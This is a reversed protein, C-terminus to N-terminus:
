DRFGQDLVRMLQQHIGDLDQKSKITLADAQLGQRLTGLIVDSPVYKREIGVWTRRGARKGCYMALDAAKVWEQQDGHPLADANCYGITASLQQHQDAESEIVIQGITTLIQNAFDAAQDSDSSTAFERVILFEEGGWRIIHDHQNTIERLKQAVERLVQDGASHGLSDNIRKFHDIDVVYFTFAIGDAQESFEMQEFYRRNALRTLPDTLSAMELERSKERLADATSALDKTKSDVLAQLRRERQRLRATRWRFILAILAALLLLAIIRFATTEYWRPMVSISLPAKQGYWNGFADQTQVEFQYSGPPLATYSAVRHSGDTPRWQAEFESLGLSVLRYRYKQERSRAFDLSAFEIEVTNANPTVVLEEASNRVDVGGIAIRTYVLPGPKRDPRWVNPRIVTLGLDGGFLLEGSRTQVSANRLYPAMVDAQDPTLITGDDLIVALGASTAAWIRNASDILVASVIDSPLGDQKRVRIAEGIADQEAYILGGGTTGFWIGEDSTTAISTVFASALEPLVDDHALRARLNFNHDLWHPGNWTGVVYGSGDSVINTVRSDSWGTSDIANAQWSEGQQQYHWLGDVGGALFGDDVVLISGTYADAPRGKARLRTVPGFEWHFVGSNSGIFVSGDPAEAVVEVAGAPLITDNAPSGVISNSVGQFPDLIDVGGSELGIWLDGKSHEFLSRPRADRLDADGGTDGFVALVSNDAPQAFGLGRSTGVWTLGSRDVHLSRVQNHSLSSDVVRNNAIHRYSEKRTDWEVIGDGYTGLWILGPAVEAFTYFWAGDLSGLNLKEFSGDLQKRYVGDRATGVWLTGDAALLLSSTRPAPGNEAPLSFQSFDADSPGLRYLGRETSAWITHGHEVTVDFVRLPQTFRLFPTIQLTAKDLQLLGNETAVWLEGNAGAAINLVVADQESRELVPKLDFAVPDFLYLGQSGGLWLGQKDAHITWVEKLNRLTQPAALEYGDWRVVGDSTTCWIFGNEDQAITSVAGRPFGHEVSLNTFVNDRVEHWRESEPLAANPSIETAPTAHVFLVAILALMGPLICRGLGSRHMCTALFGEPSESLLKPEPVTM